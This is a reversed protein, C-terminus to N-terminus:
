KEARASLRFSPKDDRGLGIADGAEMAVTVGLPALAELLFANSAELNSAGMGIHNFV